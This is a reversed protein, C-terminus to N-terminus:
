KKKRKYMKGILNNDKEIKRSIRNVSSIEMGDKYKGFGYRERKINSALETGSILLRNESENHHKHHTHTQIDKEIEQDSKRKRYTHVPDNQNYKDFLIKFQKQFLRTIIDLLNNRSLHPIMSLAVPHSEFADDFIKLTSDKNKSEKMKKRLEVLDVEQILKTKGLEISKLPHHFIVWMEMLHPMYECKYKRALEVVDQDFETKRPAIKEYIFNNEKESHSYISGRSNIKYKARIEMLDNVFEENRNLKYEYYKLQNYADTKLIELYQEM